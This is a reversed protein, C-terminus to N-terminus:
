NLIFNVNIYEEITKISNKIKENDSKIDKEINYINAELKNYLSASYNNNHDKLENLMIKIKEEFNLFDEKYKNKFKDLSNKEEEATM